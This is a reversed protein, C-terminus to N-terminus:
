DIYEVLRLLRIGVSLELTTNRVLQEPYTNNNSNTSGFGNDILRPVNQQQSYQNSIDPNVSLEILMGVREAFEFDIGGGLIMGYNWDRTFDDFGDIPCTREANRYGNERIDMYNCLNTSLTYEGRIGLMYYAFTNTGVEFRQKAGLSLSINNFKYKDTTRSTLNGNTDFFQVRVASGRVHYGSQAFVSFKGDTPLSEIFAVAQYSFLPDKDVNNWKQFGANVGGKVGFVFGGYDQAQLLMTLFIFATTLGLIKKM